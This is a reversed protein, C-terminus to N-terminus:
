DHQKQGQNLPYLLPQDHRLDDAIERRRHSYPHYVLLLEREGRSGVLLIELKVSLSVRPGIRLPCQPLAPIVFGM